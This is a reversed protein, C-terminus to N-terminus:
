AYEINYICSEQAMGDLTERGNAKQPDRACKTLLFLTDLRRLRLRAEEEQEMICPFYSESLKPCKTSHMYGMCENGYQIDDEDPISAIIQDAEERIRKTNVPTLSFIEFSGNDEETGLFQFQLPILKLEYVLITVCVDVERVDTPGYFPLWRRWRGMHTFYAKRM